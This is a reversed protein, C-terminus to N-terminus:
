PGRREWGEEFPRLHYNAGCPHKAAEAEDLEVGHGPADFPELHREAVRPM